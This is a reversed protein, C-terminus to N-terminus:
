CIKEKNLKHIGKQTINVLKMKIKLILTFSM